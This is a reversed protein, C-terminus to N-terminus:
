EVNNSMSRIVFCYVLRYTDFYATIEKGTKFDIEIKDENWAYDMMSVEPELGSLIHPAEDALMSDNSESIDQNITKATTTPKYSSHSHVQQSKLKEKQVSSSNKTNRSRNVSKRSKNRSFSSLDLKTKPKHSVTSSSAKKTTTSVVHSNVINKPLQHGEKKQLIQRLKSNNKMRSKIRLKQKILKRTRNHVKRELIRRRRKLRKRSKANLKKSSEVLSNTKYLHRPKHIKSTVMVDKLRPWGSSLSSTDISSALGITTVEFKPERKLAETSSVNLKSPYNNRHTRFRRKKNSSAMQQRSKSRKIQQSSLASATPKTTSLPLLEQVKTHFPYLKTTANDSSLIRNRSRFQTKTQVAVIMVVILGFLFIIQTSFAIAM